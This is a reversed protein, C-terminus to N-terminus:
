INRIALQAGDECADDKPPENQLRENIASGRPISFFFTSGTKCNPTASLQGHHSEIITRSISLGIGMGAPKTTYFAEFLKEEDGAEIGVGSDV